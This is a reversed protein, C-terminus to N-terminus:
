QSWDTPTREWRHKRLEMYLDVPLPGKNAASINAEV